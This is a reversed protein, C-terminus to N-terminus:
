VECPPSGPAGCQGVAKKNWDCKNIKHRQKKYPGLELEDANEPARHQGNRGRGPRQSVLGKRDDLSPKFRGEAESLGGRGGM